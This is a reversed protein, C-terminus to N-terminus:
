FSGDYGRAAAQRQDGDYARVRIDARQDVAALLYEGTFPNQVYVALPATSSPQVASGNAYSQAGGPIYTGGFIEATQAMIQEARARKSPAHPVYTEGGTEPEAWVRWEGARAIQAVHNESVSGNAHYTVVAGNAHSSATNGGAFRIQSENTQVNLTITRYSNRDILQIVDNIRAKADATEAIMKWETDSPIRFIQDALAAAEDANAGLQQARDILAQRSAELTARYQDTNGDLEFQAGAADQASKAMDVLMAMNDRGVQTGQDLSLAYGEVGDRAKQITEDVDALADRYDINKSIADQGVGNAENITDILKQLEDNLDSTNGAAEMYADAASAVSTENRETARTAQERLQTAREQASTEEAVQERLTGASQSLDLLSIGLKDAMEQAAAGGGTAVDLIGNLEKMAAANGSAADTVLDLSIGLKDANDYANGFNVWLLTKDVQLNAEALKRAADGGAELADAYAEAKARAEAQKQALLAVVTVIGTLALGAAVGVLATKGMSVNTADLQAKLEAFKARLGIAAGAFLAVAATAVGLVLATAQVPAPLEGYWDVLATVSQVMERLVDNAGSGTRILATDFAGGLKEVDGALNDQRMAAQEAAYGSDNVKDTWEEIAQAGGEYLIRATTIQENGFIRGLAASREAETLGGLRAKLIQSVEALSKMNGQADFIEIGYQGMTETAVKSPATLSMLVGRLGTGAKEGLIGQSALYALSGGTEELSIGLGAAVPGVYSLALALDDVSGQAKGAGAALVDSVHAAQEAPLKYQKLTTAMIEASRAVQLQGAAALALAGNLSGGVIDSVEMGAKALEEQANAAETASYATDAGAQLAAESLTKQEQATAMVAASTNSMAQDFETWKAVSLGVVAAIAVGTLTLATSLKKAADAQQETSYKQKDQKPAASASEDGVKKTSKANEELPARASQAQRGTQEIATGTKEVKPAADAGSRGVQQVKRDAADMQQEFTQYGATQIKFILAGADFSM